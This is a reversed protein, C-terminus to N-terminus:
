MNSLQQMDINLLLLVRSTNRWLDIIIYNHYIAPAFSWCTHSVSRDFTFIHHLSVNLMYQLHFITLLNLQFVTGSLLRQMASNLCPQQFIHSLSQPHPPKSSEVIM